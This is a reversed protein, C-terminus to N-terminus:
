LEPWQRSPGHSRCSVAYFASNPAGLQGDDTEPMLSAALELIDTEQSERAAEYAAATLVTGDM